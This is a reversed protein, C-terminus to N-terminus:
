KVIKIKAFPMEPPVLPLSGVQWHLLCSIHSWGMPRSSGRSSPMAVWELIRAQLIGHVSSGPPGCDMPECLGVHNLHTLVCARVSTRMCISLAERTDRHYLIRRGICSIGTWIERHPCSGRSSSIAVWELIRAQLIGHVSSGPPGGDMPECLGVHNLHTLVCARVYWAYLYPKGLTETTFFGGALAPSAPEYRGTHAPDGPPPFPLGSWYEQRPFGM